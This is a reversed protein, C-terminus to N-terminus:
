NKDPHCPSHVSQHMGKGGSVCCYYPVYFSSFLLCNLAWFCSLDQKTFWFCCFRQATLLASVRPRRLELGSLPVLFAGPSLHCGSDPWINFRHHPIPDEREHLLGSCWLMASHQQLAWPCFVHLTGMVLLWPSHVWYPLQVTMAESDEWPQSGSVGKLSETRSSALLTFLSPSFYYFLLLVLWLSPERWCWFWLM